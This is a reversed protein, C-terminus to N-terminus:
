KVTYGSKKLDNVTAQQMNALATLFDAQSKSKAAKGFEDVYANYAVNVNPGFTTIPIQESSKAALDFFDSQDSLFPPPTDTTGQANIAAPYIGVAKVLSTLGEKSTTVWKAFEYAEKPHKSQSTVVWAQGGWNGSTPQATDWVPLTTAAWKGKTDVANGALVGAGWVSSIWGVQKGGNIAANWSPTFLPQNDIVGSQVLGGWYEAVKRSAESDISVSWATGESSWWSAGAQQALGAFVSADAGTFTGLYMSPDKDHITKAAAAYEDWTKPVAIGLKEFIDKRYYFMMPGADGPVGYVTDGGLTVANWMSDSFASKLESAGVKSLDALADSAVLTPINTYETGMVDPAGSGAKIAALLKTTAPQGNTVNVAKVQINSHTRNWEEAVKETGTGGWFTLTVVSASDASDDGSSSSCAATALTLAVAIAAAGRTVVTFSRIMLVFDGKDLYKFLIAGAHRRRM